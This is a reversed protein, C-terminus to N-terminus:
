RLTESLWRNVAKKVSILGFEEPHIDKKDVFSFSAVDDLAQMGEFDKVHCQFFLDMTHVVFGSYPYLNPLSFLYESSVVELNTEEKVERKVGEEATEDMDIFGGPLDLTGKQPNKARRCVLLEGKENIIFVAVAASINLYYTFGCVECKKSKENNILFRNSGCKPCYHFLDLPHM